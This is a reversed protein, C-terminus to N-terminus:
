EHTSNTRVSVESEILRTRGQSRASADLGKSSVGDMGVATEEVVVQTEHGLLCESYANASHHVGLLYKKYTATVFLCTRELVANIAINAVLPGRGHQLHVGM